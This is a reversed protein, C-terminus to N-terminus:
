RSGELAKTLAAMGRSTHAKVSGASIGMAAAVEAERLDLWYRLVLAERQRPPLGRLASVVEQQDERLLVETEPSAAYGSPSPANRRRVQLHRVRMRALNCVAARLYAPAADADRLKNWRRHLDCFAEAVIDEADSAAGLLSALRTLEAAHAEFLRTVSAEREVHRLDLVAEVPVVEVPRAAAAPPRAVPRM